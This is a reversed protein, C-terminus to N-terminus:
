QNEPDQLWWNWTVDRIDSTRGASDSSKIRDSAVAAGLVM